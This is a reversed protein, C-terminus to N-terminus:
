KHRIKRRIDPWFERLSNRWADGALLLTGNLMGQGVSSQRPPMWLASIQAAGYAGLVSGYAFSRGGSDTHIVLVQTLADKLRGSVSTKQSRFFRPDGHTAANTGFALTERISKIGLASGYRKGFGDIDRGWAGPSNEWQNIGAVLLAGLLVRPAAMRYAHVKFKQEVTLPASGEQAGLSFM